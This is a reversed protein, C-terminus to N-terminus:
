IYPVTTFPSRLVTAQFPHSIQKFIHFSFIPYLQNNTRYSYIMFVKKRHIRDSETIGEGRLHNRELREDRGDGIRQSLRARLAAASAFRACRAHVLYSLLVTTVLYPLLLTFLTRYSYPLSLIHYSYQLPKYMFNLIRQQNRQYTISVRLKLATCAPMNSNCMRQIVVTFHLM